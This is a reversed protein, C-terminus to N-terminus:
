PRTRGDASPRALQPIGQDTLYADLELLAFLRERMADRAASRPITTQDTDRM